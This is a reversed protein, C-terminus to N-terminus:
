CQRRRRCCDCGHRRWMEFASLAEQTATFLRMPDALEAGLVLGGARCLKGGCHFIALM